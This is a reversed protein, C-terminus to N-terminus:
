DRYDVLRRSSDDWVVIGHLLGLDEQDALMRKLVAHDLLGRHAGPSFRREVPDSTPAPGIQNWALAWVLDALM